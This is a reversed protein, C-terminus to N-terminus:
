NCSFNEITEKFPGSNIGNPFGIKAVKFNIKFATIKGSKANVTLETKGDVANWKGGCSSSLIMNGNVLKGTSSIPYEGPGSMPSNCTNISTISNEHDIVILGYEAVERSDVRVETTGKKFGERVSIDCKGLQYDAQKLSAAQASAISLAFLSILAFKM